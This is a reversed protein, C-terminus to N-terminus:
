KLLALTAEVIKPGNSHDFVANTSEYFKGAVAEATVMYGELMGNAVTIIFTNPSHAKVALGYEVFYEGPWAVFKWPGIEIAQIEMPMVSVAVKKLSGDAYARAMTVTEEAGFWDCEATRTEQRPAGSTRLHDFRARAEKEAREAAALAPFKRMTLELFKRRCRVPLDSRYTIGPIVAAIAQGLKEGLRQAEAFTNAHTVHRPSQNGATGIHYLIPCSAPLTRGRLYQRAFYPFDGTILTSDEHLVTPHMSYVVLCALPTHNALSRVVLVPVEPDAPGAPDHRNTGVGEARAPALGAEAPVAAKVAARGAEVMRDAAFKLYERDTKPVVSDSSHSIYDALMPGSHTHTGTVMISEAPVGTEAAIRERVGAAFDKEIVVLDNALIIASDKGSKLYLATCQLPDHVGTSYRPVHPYGYLFVSGSPTVDTVAAGALIAAAAGGDFKPSSKKVDASKVAAKEPLTRVNSSAAECSAALPKKLSKM